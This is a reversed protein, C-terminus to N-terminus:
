YLPRIIEDPNSTYRITLVILFWVPSPIGDSLIRTDTSPNRFALDAAHLKLRFGELGLARFM